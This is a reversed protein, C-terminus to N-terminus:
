NFKILTKLSIDPNNLKNKFAKEAEDIEYVKIEKLLPSLDVEELLKAVEGFMYNNLRSGLFDVEKKILQSISIPVEDDVIGLIVVRGAASVHHIADQITKRLGAAEIVVSAGEDNTLKKVKAELDEKKSNIIYDAGMQKAMELKSDDIDTAIVTAGKYKAVITVMLGITGTGIVLVTDDKTVDARYTSEFGVSIPEGLAALRPDIDKPVKYANDKPITIYEQFGGNTHAGFVKINKCVNHRDHKCAYCEGCSLVPDILVMDGKSLDDDGNSDEIYGVLEHGLTIPFDVFPSEGEYAHLDSGCVGGYKIKILVEEDKVKPRDKEALLLEHPEKLVISKM